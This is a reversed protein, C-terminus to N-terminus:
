VGVKSYYEGARYRSEEVSFVPDFGLRVRAKTDDFTYTHGCYRLENVPPLPPERWVWVWGLLWVLMHFLFALAVVAYYPAVKDGVRLGRTALYPAVFDFINSPPTDDCVVYAEGAVEGPRTRLARMAVVHAWAVNGAFFSVIRYHVPLNHFISSVPCKCQLIFCSISHM